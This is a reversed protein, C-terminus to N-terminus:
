INKNKQSIHQIRYYLNNSKGLIYYDDKNIIIIKKRKNIQWYKNDQYLLPIVTYKYGKINVIVYCYINNYARIGYKDINNYECIIDAYSFKSNIRVDSYLLSIMNYYQKNIYDYVKM